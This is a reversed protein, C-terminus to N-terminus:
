TVEDDSEFLGDDAEQGFLPDHVANAQAEDFDQYVTIV